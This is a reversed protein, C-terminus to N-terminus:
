FVLFVRFCTTTKFVFPGMQIALSTRHIYQWSNKLNKIKKLNIWLCFPQPRGITLVLCGHPFIVNAFVGDPSFIVLKSDSHLVSVSKSAQLLLVCM